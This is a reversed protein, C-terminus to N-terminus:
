PSWCPPSGVDEGDPVYADSLDEDDGTLGIGGVVAFYLLRGLGSHDGGEASGFPEEGVVGVRTCFLLRLPLEEWPEGRLGGIVRRVIGAARRNAVRLSPTAIDRCSVTSVGEDASLFDRSPADTILKSATFWTQYANDV